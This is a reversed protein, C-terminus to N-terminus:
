RKGVLRIWESNDIGVRSLQSTYSDVIRQALLEKIEAIWVYQRKETDTFVYEGSSTKKSLIPSNDTEPKFHRVDISYSRNDVLYHNTDDIIIAEYDGKSGLEKKLPLFLFNRGEAFPIRAADCAQQICLLFLENEDKKTRVITGLTLKHTNMGTLLLNKHQILKAFKHNSLSSNGICFLSSANKKAKDEGLQIKIESLKESLKVKESSLIKKLKTSDIDYQNSEITISQPVKFNYEIWKQIQNQLDSQKASFLEKVTCSLIEDLISKAETTEAISIYHGLFAPDIDKSFVGLINSTNDRIATIASLAYNPLLGITFAAFEETILEPLQNYKIIKDKHNEVVKTGEKARVIIKLNTNQVSLNKNDVAYDKNQIHQHIEEAINEIDSEGTYIIILKVKEKGADYIVDQIIRKSYHGRNDSEDDAMPDYKETTTLRLNWDLVVADAKQIANFCDVIDGDVKPAYIACIKGEKLFAESVAKANFDNNHVVGEETNKPLDGYAQEDIFVIDRIFKDAIERSLDVFTKEETDNNM